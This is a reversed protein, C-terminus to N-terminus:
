PDCDRRTEEVAGILHDLLGALFHMMPNPEARGVAAEGDRGGAVPEPEAVLDVQDGAVAVWSDVEVVPIDAHAAVASCTQGIGARPV